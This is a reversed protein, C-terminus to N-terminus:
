FAINPQIMFQLDDGNLNGQRALDGSYKRNSEWLVGVQLVLGAYVLPLKKDIVFYHSIANFNKFDYDFTYEFGSNKLVSWFPANFDLNSRKVSLYSIDRINENGHIKFGTRFSWFLKRSEFAREGKIKAEIEYWNDRILENDKLHFQGVSLLYGTYGKNSYKEEHGKETFRVVNGLFLSFAYPEEFGLTVAKVLNLSETVSMQDYFDEQYYKVAAGTVPLPNVSVELVMNRPRLSSKLLYSYIDFENSSGMDPIDNDAFNILLYVNSYYPDLEYELFVRQNDPEENAELSGQLFLFTFLAALIYISIKM